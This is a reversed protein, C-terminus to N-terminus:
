EVIFKARGTVQKQGDYSLIFYSGPSLKSINIRLPQVSISDIKQKFLFKGQADFLYIEKTNKMQDPNLELTIHDGSGPNPYLSITYNSKNNEELGSGLDVVTVMLSDIIWGDKQTDNGDSTFNFDILLDDYENLKIPYYFIFQFGSRQWDFTGSYAAIGSNLTDDEDYLNSWFFDQYENNQPFSFTKCEAINNWVQGSDFSVTIFGGDLLSDSQMKHTFEVLLNGSYEMALANLNLRFSSSTNTPYSDATDTMLASANFGALSFYPKNTTGIEWISNPPINVTSDCNTFDCTDSQVIGEGMYYPSQGYGNATFIVTLLFISLNRM